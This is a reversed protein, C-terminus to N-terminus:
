DYGLAALEEETMGLFHAIEHVVTIEIEEELEKMSRCFRELPEQFIFITDPYLPPDFESREALSVGSYIGFPPDDPELGLAASMEPSPRRQVSILINDLRERIEAPVRGLAREVVRDFERSSLKMGRGSIMVAGASGIPVAIVPHYVQKFIIGCEKDGSKYVPPSPAALPSINAPFYVPTIEM